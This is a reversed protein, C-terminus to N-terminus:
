VTPDSHQARELADSPACDEDSSPRVPITITITTGGERSSRIDMAGGFLTVRESMIRMGLSRIGRVADPPKRDADIGVGNDSIILEIDAGLPKVSVTVETARAHKRINNFSEQILRYITLQLDKPLHDAPLSLSPHAKIDASETLQDCLSRITAELGFEDLMKPHLNRSIMRVEEMTRDLEAIMLALAGLPAEVGQILKSHVLHARYKVAALMQNIGDHLDQAIRRREEEQGKLISKPIERLLNEARKSEKLKERQLSIYRRQNLIITGIFFAAFLVIFASGLIIIWLIEPESIPM